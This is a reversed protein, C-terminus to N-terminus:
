NFNFVIIAEIVEFGAFIRPISLPLRRIPASASKHTTSILLGQTTLLSLKNDFDLFVGISSLFNCPCIIFVKM